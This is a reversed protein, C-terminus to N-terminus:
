IFWSGTNKCCVSIWFYLPLPSDHPFSYSQYHVNYESLVTVEVKKEIIPQSYESCTYNGADKFTVDSVSITFESQTLKNISYRKDRLVLFFHSFFINLIEQHVMCVNWKHEQQSQLELDATNVEIAISSCLSDQLIRGTLTTSALM